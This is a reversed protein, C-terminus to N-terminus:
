FAISANIGIDILNIHRSLHSLYQAIIKDSHMLSYLCRSSMIHACWLSVDCASHVALLVFRAFVHILVCWDSLAHAMHFSIVTLQITSLWLLPSSRWCSTMSHRLCYKQRHEEKYETHVICRSALRFGTTQTYIRQLQIKAHYTLNLWM